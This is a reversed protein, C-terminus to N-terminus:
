FTVDCMMCALRELVTMARLAQVVEVVCV